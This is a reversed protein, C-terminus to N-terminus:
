KGRRGERQSKLAKENECAVQHGGLCAVQFLRTAREVDRPVGDGAYLLDALNACGSANGGNCAREFFAAAETKSRTGGRGDRYLVGLNFCGLPDGASCGTGECAQRYFVRARLPDEPGLKGSDHLFGANTCGRPEEGRNCALEYGMLARTFSPATGRGFEYNLGMNYCGATNGGNCAETYWHLAQGDDEAVGVGEAYAYALTTCGAASGDQCAKRVLALGRPRDMPVGTGSLHWAGIEACAPASGKQCAQNLLDRALDQNPEELGTGKAYLIGLEFCSAARGADCGKGHLEYAGALKVTQTLSWGQRLIGIRVEDGPQKRLLEREVACRSRVPVEDVRQILDEPQLEGLAAPGGEEVREVLAGQYVEAAPPGVTELDAGLTAVDRVPEPRGPAAEEVACGLAPLLVLAFLPLPRM